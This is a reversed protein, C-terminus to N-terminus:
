VQRLQQQQSLQQTQTPTSSTVLKVDVWKTPTRSSATKAPISDTERDLNKLNTFADPLKDGLKNRSEGVSSAIDNSVDEPLKETTKLEGLENRRWFDGKANQEKGGSVAIAKTEKQERVQPTIGLEVGATAAIDKVNAVSIPKQKSQEDKGAVESAKEVGAVFAEVFAQRQETTVDDGGLGARNYIKKALVLSPEDKGKYGEKGSEKSYKEDSFDVNGKKIAGVIEEVIGNESNKPKVLESLLAPNKQEVLLEPAPANPRRIIAKTEKQERVQPTIGLEVGATAAIDKVNAVSIPKQKSQEDKGAVESAKEVGAVFAEVFAQRQETTVDDGGLGARNYIKKALVLSPEDKGKYGEKGSEKSYKEDSFDVNGKKIAGVIEEVIGNESNKPKVLESLLAPNKQEVLLEPAPANPRRIPAPANPRRIPAPANPRRIPKNRNDGLRNKLEEKAGNNVGLDTAFDLLPEKWKKLETMLMRKGDTTGTIQQFKSGKINYELDALFGEKRKSQMDAFGSKSILDDRLKDRNKDGSEGIEHNDLFTDIAQQDKTREPAKEIDGSQLANARRGERSNKNHRAKNRIMNTTGQTTKFLGHAAFGIAAPILVPALFPIMTSALLLAGAIAVSKIGAGIEGKANSTGKSIQEDQEYYAREANALAIAAKSDAVTTPKHKVASNKKKIEDEQSAQQQEEKAM